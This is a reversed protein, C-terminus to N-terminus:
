GEKEDEDGSEKGRRGAIDRNSLAPGVKFGLVTLM